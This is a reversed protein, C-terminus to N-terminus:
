FTSEIAKQLNKMEREENAPTGISRDRRFTCHQLYNQLANPLLVELVMTSAFIVVNIRICWRMMFAMKLALKASQDLILTLFQKEGYRQILHEIFPGAM